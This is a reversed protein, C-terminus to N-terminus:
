LCFRRDMRIWSWKRERGEKM